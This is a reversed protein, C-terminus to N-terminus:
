EHSIKRVENQDNFKKWFIMSVILLALSIIQSISLHLPTFFVGRDDGRIFEILFRFFSYSSFYLLAIKGRRKESSNYELHLRLQLFVALAFLFASEYLQTPHRYIDHQENPLCYIRPWNTIAGYCCNNLFCGIRGIAHGLALSPAISDLIQAIKIKKWRAFAITTTCAALFGGYFVLGGEHIALYDRISSFQEPYLLIYLIRAGVISSLAIILAFDIFYEQNIGAKKMNFRLLMLAFVFALTMLCGYYYATIPIHSFSM